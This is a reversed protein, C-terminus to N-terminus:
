SVSLNSFSWKVLHKLIAWCRLTSSTRNRSTCSPRQSVQASLFILQSPTTHTHTPLPPTPSPRAGQGALRARRGTCLRARAQRVPWLRACANRAPWFRARAHEQGAAPARACARGLVDLARACARGLVDLSSQGRANPLPTPALPPGRASRAPAHPRSRDAENAFSLIIEGNFDTWFYDAKRTPSCSKRSTTSRNVSM